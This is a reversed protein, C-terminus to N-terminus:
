DGNAVTTRQGLLVGLTTIVAEIMAHAYGIATRIHMVGKVGLVLLGLLNRNTPNLDQEQM